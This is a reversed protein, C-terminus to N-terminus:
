PQPRGGAPAPRGEGTDAGSGSRVSKMFRARAHARLIGGQTLEARMDYLAGRVGAVAAALEAPQGTRAPRVFRVTLEATVAVIGRSFLCNTMAADLLASVVGGHLTESYGQLSRECDFVARVSGDDQAHFALHFGMPDYQGCFMCNTHASSRTSELLSQAQKAALTTM